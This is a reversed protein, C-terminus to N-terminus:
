FGMILRVIFALVQDATYLFVSAVFVMAFVAIVSSITEKRTAWTIKKAESRVQRIFTAPSTKAM